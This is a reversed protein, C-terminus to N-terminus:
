GPLFFHIVGLFLPAFLFPGSQGTLGHLRFHLYLQYFSNGPHHGSDQSGNSNPKHGPTLLFLFINQYQIIVQCFFSDWITPIPTDRVDLWIVGM